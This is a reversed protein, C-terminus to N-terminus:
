QTVEDPPYLALTEKLTLQYATAWYEQFLYSRALYARIAYTLRPFFAVEKLPHKHQPHTAPCTTGCKTLSVDTLATVNRENFNIVLSRCIGERTWVFDGWCGEMSANLRTEALPEVLRLWRRLTRTTLHLSLIYDLVRDTLKSTSMLANVAWPGLRPLIHQAFVSHM